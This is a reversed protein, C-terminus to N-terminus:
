VTSQTPWNELTKHCSCDSLRFRAADYTLRCTLFLMSFCCPDRANPCNLLETSVVALPCDPQSPFIERVLSFKRGKAQARFRGLTYSTSTTCRVRSRRVSATHTMAQGFVEFGSSKLLGCTLQWRWVSSGLHYRM